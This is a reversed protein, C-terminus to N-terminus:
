GYPQNSRPPTNLSGQTYPRQSSVVEREDDCFFAYVYGSGSTYVCFFRRASSVKTDETVRSPLSAAMTSLFSFSNSLFSSLSSLFFFGYSFFLGGFLLFWNFGFHSEWGRDIPTSLTCDGFDLILTLTAGAPSEGGSAGHLTSVFNGVTGESFETFLLKNITGRSL